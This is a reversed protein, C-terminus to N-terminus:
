FRCLTHVQPTGRPHSWPTGLAGALTQQLIVPDSHIHWYPLHWVTAHRPAQKCGAGAMRLAAPLLPVPVCACPSGLVLVYCLSLYLPLRLRSRLARASVQHALARGLSLSRQALYPDQSLRPPLPLGQRFTSRKVPLACGSGCECRRRLAGGLRSGRCTAAATGAPAHAGVPSGPLCVSAAQPQVRRHVLPWSWFHGKPQSPPWHWPLSAAASPAPTAASLPWGCAQPGRAGPSQLPVQQM